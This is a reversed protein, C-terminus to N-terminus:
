ADIHIIKKHRESLSMWKVVQTMLYVTSPSNTYPGELPLEIVFPIILSEKPKLIFSDYVKYDGYSSAGEGVSESMLHVLVGLAKQKSSGAKLTISGEVSHGRRYSGDKVSLTITMPEHGFLERVRNFWSM